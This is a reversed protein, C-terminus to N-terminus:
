INGKHKAGVNNMEQIVAALLDEETQTSLADPFKDVKDNIQSVTSKVISQAYRRIEAASPGGNRGAAAPTGLGHVDKVQKGFPSNKPGMGDLEADTIKSSVSKLYNDDLELPGNGMSQLPKPVGGKGASGLPEIAGGDDSTGVGETKVGNPQDLFTTNPLDSPENAEQTAKLSELEAAVKDHEVKDIAYYGASVALLKEHKTMEKLKEPSVGADLIAKEIEEIPKDIVEPHLHSHWYPKENEKQRKIEDSIRYSICYIYYCM